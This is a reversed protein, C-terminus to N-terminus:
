VTTWKYSSKLKEVQTSLKSKDQEVENELAEVSDDAEDVDTFGYKTELQGKLGDLEGEFRNKKNKAEDIETKMKLLTDEM